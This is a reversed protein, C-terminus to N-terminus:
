RRRRFAEGVLAAAEASQWDERGTVRWVERGEADFLITTPLIEIKLDSMIQMKPDRWAELTSFGRKAFFDEVKEPGGVDQSLAVVQLKDGQRAALKDLTPMEEVCPACWTAWLNVLVPKGQFDALTATEGDPDLFETAPAPQGAHSRDLKGAPAPAGAAAQNSPAVEKSCAALLLLPLLLARRM